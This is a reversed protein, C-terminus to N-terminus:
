SREKYKRLYPISHHFRLKRGRAAAADKARLERLDASPVVAAPASALAVAPRVSPAAANDTETAM